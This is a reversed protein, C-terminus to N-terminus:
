FAEGPSAPPFLVFSRAHLAVIRGFGVEAGPVYRDSPLWPNAVDMADGAAPAASPRYGGGFPTGMAFAEDTVDGGTAAGGAAAYSPVYSGAGTLPDVQRPAHARTVVPLDHCKDRARKASCRVAGTAAGADSGITFGSVQNEIFETIQDVYSSSTPM